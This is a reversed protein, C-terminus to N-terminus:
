NCKGSVRPRVMNEYGQLLDQDSVGKEAVERAIWHPGTNLLLITPEEVIGVTDGERFVVPKELLKRYKESWISESVWQLLGGESSLPVYGDLHAFAQDFEALLLLHRELIFTTIPNRLREETVGALKLYHTTLNHTPNLFISDIRPRNGHSRLEFPGTSSHLMNRIIQHHQEVLSDGVM